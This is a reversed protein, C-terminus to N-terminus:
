VGSGIMPYQYKKTESFSTRQFNKQGSSRNITHNNVPTTDKKKLNELWEEPFEADIALLYMELLAVTTEETVGSNEYMERLSGIDIFESLDAEYKTGAYTLRVDVDLVKDGMKGLTIHIGDKDIEDQNDTGSAFAKSSCHHHVTGGVIWEPGWLDRQKDFEPDETDAETHMGMMFQPFVWIGWEQTDMNFMLNLQAEEGKHVVHTKRMFGLVQAWVDLGIKKGKYVLSASKLEPLKHQRYGKFLDDEFETYVRGKHQFLEPSTRENNKLEQTKQNM